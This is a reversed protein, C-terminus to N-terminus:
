VVGCRVESVPPGRSDRISVSQRSDVIAEVEYEEDGEDEAGESDNVEEVDDVDIPEQAAAGRRPTGSTSRSATRSM